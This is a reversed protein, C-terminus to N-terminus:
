PALTGEQWEPLLAICAPKKKEVRFEARVTYARGVERGAIKTKYPKGFYQQLVWNIHRLHVNLNGMNTRVNRVGGKKTASVRAAQDAAELDKVKINTAWEYIMVATIRHSTHQPLRKVFKRVQREWEIRMPNENVMLEEKTFPMPGREDEPVVLNQVYTSEAGKGATSSFRELNAKDFQAQLTRELDSVPSRPDVPM